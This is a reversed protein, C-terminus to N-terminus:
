RHPLSVTLSPGNKRRRVEKRAEAVFDCLGPYVRRIGRAALPRGFRVLGLRRSMTGGLKVLWDAQSLADVLLYEDNAVGKLDLFSAVAKRIVEKGPGFGVVYVEEGDSGQGVAFVKGIDQSSVRDFLPLAVLEDVTPLREPALRGTHIAAAVVSTHASGFCHYFVKM